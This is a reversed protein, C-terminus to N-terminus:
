IVVTTIIILRISNNNNNNSNSHKIQIYKTTEKGKSTRVKYNAEPSNMKQPIWILSGHV